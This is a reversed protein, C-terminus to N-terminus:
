KKYVAPNGIFRINRGFKTKQKMRLTNWIWIGYDTSTIEEVDSKLYRYTKFYNTVYYYQEDAEVRKLDMISFYMLAVFILYCGTLVLKAIPSTLLPLDGEDATHSVMVLLGFFTIYFVPVFIKWLLTYNSSLRYM